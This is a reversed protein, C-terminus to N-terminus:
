STLLTPPPSLPRTQTQLARYQTKERQVSDLDQAPDTLTSVQTQKRVPRPLDAFDLFVYM